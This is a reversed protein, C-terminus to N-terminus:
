EEQHLLQRSSPSMRNHKPLAAILPPKEDIKKMQMPTHPKHQQMLDIDSRLSIIEEAMSSFHRLDAESMAPKTLGEFSVFTNKEEAKNNSATSTLRVQDAKLYIPEKKAFSSSAKLKIPRQKKLLQDKAENLNKLISIQKAM